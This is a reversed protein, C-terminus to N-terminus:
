FLIVGVTSMLKCFDTIKYYYYYYHINIFPWFWTIRNHHATCYLFLHKVFDSFIILVNVILINNSYSHKKFVNLLKSTRIHSPLKNWLTPAADSFDNLEYTQLECKPVALILEGSSRLTRTNPKEHLLETLYIPAQGNLAKYTIM